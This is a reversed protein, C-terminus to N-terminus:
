VTVSVFLHEMPCIYIKDKGQIEVMKIADPNDPEVETYRGDLENRTTSFVRKIKGSIWEKEGTFFLAEKGILNEDM